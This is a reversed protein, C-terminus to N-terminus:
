FTQEYIGKSKRSLLDSTDTFLPLKVEKRLRPIQESWREAQGGAETGGEQRTTVSLWVQIIRFLPTSLLYRQRWVKLSSTNMNWNFSLPTKWCIGKIKLLFETKNKIKQSNKSHINFKTITKRHVSIIM